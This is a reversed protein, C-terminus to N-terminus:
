IMKVIGIYLRMLDRVHDMDVDSARDLRMRRM